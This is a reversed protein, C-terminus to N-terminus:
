KYKDWGTKRLITVTEGPGASTKSVLEYAPNALWLKSHDMKYSYVGEKHKYPVAEPTEQDFDHIVLYGGNNLVIDGAYVIHPLHERDCLYLCFGYIVMDVQDFGMHLKVDNATGVMADVNVGLDTLLDIAKRSPDIAYGRAKYTHCLATLSLAQGCGIELISNVSIVEKRVAMYVPSRAPAKDLNRELWADGEGKLFVEEQIM